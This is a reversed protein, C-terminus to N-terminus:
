SAVADYGAATFEILCYGHGFPDAMVAIRGWSNDRIAQEQTAGAALSQAVAQELDDVVFDLHVPTWHREYSRLQDANSFAQTGADKALLYLKSSSGILEVANNGLRRAPRLAFAACYFREATEIDSVDINVLMDSM